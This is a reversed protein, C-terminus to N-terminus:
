GVDASRRAEEGSHWFALLEVDTMVRIGRDLCFSVVEPQHLHRDLTCLVHARGAIATAIIANHTRDQWVRHSSRIPLILEAKMRLETQFAETEEDTLGWRAQLPAYSLVRRLETLIGASLVWIDTGGRLTLLVERAPGSQSAARALINTDLIVRM